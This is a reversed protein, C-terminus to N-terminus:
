ARHGPRRSMGTIPQLGGRERDDIRVPELREGHPREGGLEPRPGHREVTVNRVARIEVHEDDLRHHRVRRRRPRAGVPSGFHPPDRGRRPARDAGM